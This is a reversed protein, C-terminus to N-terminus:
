YLIPVEMNAVREWEPLELPWAVCYLRVRRIADKLAIQRDLISKRHKEDAGATGGTLYQPLRKTTINHYASQADARARTCRPDEDCTMADTVRTALDRLTRDVQQLLTNPNQRIGAGEQLEDAPSAPANIPAQSRSPWRPILIRQWGAQANASPIWSTVWDKLRTWLASWTSQVRGSDPPVPRDSSLPGFPNSTDVNQVTAPLLRATLRHAADYEYGEYYSAPGRIATLFGNADYEYNSVRGDVEYAILSGRANYQYRVREGDMNIADLLRGAADYQLARGVKGDRDTLTQLNGDADYTFYWQGTVADGIMEVTATALGNADYTWGTSTMPGSPTASLGQSGNADITPFWAYGVVQGKADYTFYDVRSPSAIKVPLRWTPHWETTTTQANATGYGEIRQTERGLTDYTYRTEKNDFDFKSSLSGSDDYTFAKTVSGCELCPASVSTPRLVNQQLQFAYTRSSGDSSTVTTQGNDLFQLQTKNIGGAHETTIARGQVDYAYTAFRAGAEDTIGTLAWRFQSNEYLYQRTKGDPWTVTALM